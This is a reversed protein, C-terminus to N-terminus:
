DRRQNKRYIRDREAQSLSRYWDRCKQKHAEWAEPDGVLNRRWQAREERAAAKLQEYREPDTSKLKARWANTHAAAQAKFIAAFEPDSALKQRLKALYTQRTERWAPTHKIAHYRDKEMRRRREKRCADSCTKPPHGHRSGRPREPIPQDCIACLPVVAEPPDSERTAREKRTNAQRIM